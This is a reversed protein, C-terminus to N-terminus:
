KTGVNGLMETSLAAFWPAAATADLNGIRSM